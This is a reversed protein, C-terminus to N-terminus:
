RRLAPPAALGTRSCCSSASPSRKLCSGYGLRWGTMAYTKSFGDCIVTREQMGPLAAITPAECGDFALRMYIEDSLVWIDREIAVQAIHELAALPM